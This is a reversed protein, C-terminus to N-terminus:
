STLLLKLQPRLDSYIRNLSAPTPEAGAVRSESRGSITVLVCDTRRNPRLGLVREVQQRANAPPQQAAAFASETVAGKGVATLCTQLALRSNITGIAVQDGGLQSLRRNAMKLSPQDKTAAALQFGVLSRPSLMALQLRYQTSGEAAAQNAALKYRVIPSFALDSSRSGEGGAEATLTHGPLALRATSPLSASPWRPWFVVQLTAGLCGTAALALWFRVLAQPM